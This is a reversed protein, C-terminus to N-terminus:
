LQYAGSVFTRNVNGHFADIVDVAQDRAYRLALGAVWADSLAKDAHLGFGADQEWDNWMFKLNRVDRRNDAQNLFIKVTQSEGDICQWLLPMGDDVLRPNQCRIAAALNVIEAHFTNLRKCAPDPIYTEARVLDAGTPNPSPTSAAPPSSEGETDAQSSDSSNGCGALAALAAIVFARCVMGDGQDINM